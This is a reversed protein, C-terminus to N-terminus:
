APDPVQTLAIRATIRKGVPEREVFLREAVRKIIELGHQGVRGPDAARVTPVAPDSDWVVVDVGDAGIRLQMLLPGLAYKHANTVLESVVLETLDRVRQSIPLGYETRMRDLFVGAHRRAAAIRNGGGELTYDARALHGESPLKAADDYGADLEM